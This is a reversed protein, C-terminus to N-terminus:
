IGCRRVRPDHRTELRTLLAEHRERLRILRGELLDSVHKSEEVGAADAAHELRDVAKAQYALRAEAKNIQDRSFRLETNWTM